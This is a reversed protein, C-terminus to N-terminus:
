AIVGGNGKLDAILRVIIVRFEPWSRGGSAHLANPFLICGFNGVTYDWSLRGHRTKWSDRFQHIHGQTVARNRTIAHPRLLLYYVM